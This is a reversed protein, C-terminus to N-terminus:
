ITLDNEHKVLWAHYILRSLTECIAAFILSLIGMGALYILRIVILRGRAAFFILMGSFDAAFVLAVLAMRRFARRNEPSFSNDRGIQGAVGWFLVLEAYCCTAILLHFPLADNILEAVHTDYTRAYLLFATFFAAGMLALVIVVAKLLIGFKKM